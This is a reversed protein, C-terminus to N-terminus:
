VDIEERPVYISYKIYAKQRKPVGATITNLISDTIYVKKISEIGMPGLSLFLERKILFAKHDKGAVVAPLADDQAMHLNLSMHKKDKFILGIDIIKIPERGHNVVLVSGSGKVRRLNGDDDEVFGLQANLAIVVTLQTIIFDLFPEIIRFLTNAAFNQM